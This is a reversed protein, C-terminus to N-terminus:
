SRVWNGQTGFVPGKADQHDERHLMEWTWNENQNEEAGKRYKHSINSSLGNQLAPIHM